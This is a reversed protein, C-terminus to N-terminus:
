RRPGMVFSSFALPLFRLGPAGAPEEDSGGKSKIPSAYSALDEALKQQLSCVGDDRGPSGRGRAWGGGGRDCPELRCTQLSPTVGSLPAFSSVERAM